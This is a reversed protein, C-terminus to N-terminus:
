QMQLYLWGNTQNNEGKVVWNANPYSVGAVTAEVANGILEDNTTILGALARVIKQLANARRWIRVLSASTTDKGGTVKPYATEVSKILTSFRSPDTRIECATDDDEVAFVRFNQNPHNTRYANIQVDSLLLVSGTWDDDDMNFQYYTGSAREGACSYSQLSDTTGAQGLIHIEFEPNGKPWGEFDSVFHAHKM